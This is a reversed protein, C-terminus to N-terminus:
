LADGLDWANCVDTYTLTDEDAFENAEATVCPSCPATGEGAAEHARDIVNGATSAAAAVAAVPALAVGLATSAIAHVTRHHALFGAIPRLLPQNDIWVAADLEADPQHGRLLNLPNM